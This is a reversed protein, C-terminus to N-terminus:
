PSGWVSLLQYTIEKSFDFVWSFEGRCKPGGIRFGKSSTAPISSWAVWIGCWDLVSGWTASGLTNDVGTVAGLNVRRGCSSLIVWCSVVTASFSKLGTVLRSSVISVSSAPLSLVMQNFDSAFSIPLHEMPNWLNRLGWSYILPLLVTKKMLGKWAGGPCLTV